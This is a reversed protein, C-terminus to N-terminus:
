SEDTATLFRELDFYLKGDWDSRREGVKKIEINGSITVTKGAGDFTLTEGSELTQAASLTLTATSGSYSGIATVTPDAVSSDMNISSVTSVDDMIGDGDDISVSASNIVAATTVATPKTLTVAIDSIEVDWGSLARIASPGHAYIKVSDDALVAAQQKNFVINGTQVTALAKTTANRTITPKVGLKDLAEVRKQVIKKEKETGEMETLVDEYSSIVSGSTINTGLPVMGASLGDINDISWRYYTSSSVDEGEIAIASGITRTAFAIVDNITPTRDIKFSHTSGASVPISFPIKGVNRGIQTTIVKTTPTQGGFTAVSNPSLSSM